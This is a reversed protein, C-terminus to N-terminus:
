IYNYSDYMSSAPSSYSALVTGDLSKLKGLYTTNSIESSAILFSEDPSLTIVVGANGYDVAWVLTSDWLIKLREGELM